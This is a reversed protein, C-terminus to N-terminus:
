QWLSQGPVDAHYFVQANPSSILIGLKKRYTAGLGPVNAGIEEFMATLLDKYRRDVKDVSRLNIWFRGSKVADLVQAGSLDGINGYRWTAQDYSGAAMTSIDRLHEPYNEILSILAEDSFLPSRHLTHNLCLNSRSWSAADSPTFNEFIREAM